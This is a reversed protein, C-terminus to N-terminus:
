FAWYGNPYTTGGAIGVFIGNPQGFFFPLGLDWSDTAASCPSGTAPICSPGGLDNFAAFSSNSFLSLANAIPLSVTGSTGNSGTLGLSLNLTSSPCYYGIDTGSVTCDSTGLTSEDSVMLLNTGSDIFTGGSNTSTYTVGNYAASNFNGYADLAYVTAGSPIANNSETGIGFILTGTATAQGTAPIAALTVLVGQYDTPFTAVPNWVNDQLPVVEPQCAGATSCYWYPDSDSQSTVIQEVGAVTSCYNVGASDCDQPENGIGLIGNAGLSAVTYEDPTNTPTSGSPVVCQGASQVDPPVTDSSILQIAIGSNATGGSAAPVSSATEGGIQVTALAVPGWNFSGDGYETCENLNNGNGDNLQALTVTTLATSLVRLGVSGTDVLINPVTQCTTTNPQCITVSTFVGNFYPQSTATVPGPGNPGFSVTLAVTNTSVNSGSLTVTQTGDGDVITLTGPVSGNTSPTFTVAISCSGSAAVSTGCTNTETFGSGTPTISVSTIALASNGVNNLTVSQPASATGVTVGSFTLSSTSLSVGSGTGSLTVTQPSGSANDAITLTGTVATTSAPTFTVTITCASGEGLSTGCTPASVVFNSPSAAISSFTLTATGSNTVTVTGTSAVGIGSSLTLSSASLTVAPTGAAATTSSSGGGCGALVILGMLVAFLGGLAATSLSKTSM